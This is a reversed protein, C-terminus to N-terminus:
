FPLDNLKFGNSRFGSCSDHEYDKLPILLPNHFRDNPDTLLQLNNM